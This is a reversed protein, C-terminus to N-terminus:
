QFWFQQVESQAFSINCAPCKRQRTQIRKEVCDKCFTHMCKTIVTSRFNIRCTSCKLLSKLNEVDSSEATSGSDKMKTTQREMEKRARILSDELQRLETKKGEYQSEWNKHFHRLADTKSKEVEVKSFAEAYQREHHRQSDKLTDIIRKQTSTEKELLSIQAQLTGETDVLKEVAKGQKELMRVFSKKEIELAEKDRMAAYYKNEAKAKDMASKSLREEMSALEFVKNKVQRDLAEWASSLKDLEAYLSKEAEGRQMELLRLKELEEEKEKLLQTLDALEPSTCPGLLARYKEVEETLALIKQSAQIQDHAYMQVDEGYSSITQEMAVVRHEAQRLQDQLVEWRQKSADDGLLYTLVLQKDGTHSALHAKCQNVELELQAIREARNEALLKLQELSSFKIADKHRREVLEANQQDRQERLRANDADRKQLMTQLEQLQKTTAGVLETDHREMNTTLRAIEDELTTTHKYREALDADLKIAFSVVEKYAANEYINDGNEKLRMESELVTYQDRLAAVQRELEIIKSERFKVQERLIGVEHTDHAGNVHVPPPTSSQSPSSPKQLLEETEDRKADKAKRAELAQVTKSRTREYRNEAAALRASYLEQQEHSERLQSRLSTVESQLAAVATTAKQTDAYQNGFLRSSHQEGLRVFNKVLTQTANAKDDLASVFEESSEKPLHRALDFLDQTDIDVQPLDEPRVLLRITEVLQTWCAVIAAYGAECTNKRQELEVIRAQSRENERSYHRMRRFIAEKRFLELNDLTPEDENNLGNPQPSGNASTLVRKKNTSTDDDDAHPRKRSESHM